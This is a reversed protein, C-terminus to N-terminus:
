GRGGVFPIHSILWKLTKFGFIALEVGFVITLVTIMQGTPVLPDLLQFYAGLSQLATHVATPFGAGAPFISIIGSVLLYGLNVIATTIM